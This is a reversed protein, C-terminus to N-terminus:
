EEQRNRRGQRARKPSPARARPVEYEEKMRQVDDKYKKMCAYAVASAYSFAVSDNSLSELFEKSDSEGLPLNLADLAKQQVASKTPGVVYEDFGGLGEPTLFNRTRIKNEKLAASAVEVAASLLAHEQPAVSDMGHTLFFGLNAMCSRNIRISAGSMKQSPVLLM